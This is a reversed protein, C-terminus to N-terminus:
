KGSIRGIDNVLGFVMLLALLVLGYTVATEQFQKSLPRGRILEILYSLLYGGDLMPIPLLNMVLLAINIKFMLDLLDVWGRKAAKATEQIIMVPGGVNKRSFSGKAINFITRTYSVTEKVTTKFGEALVMPAGEIKKIEVKPVIGILYRNEKKVFLPAINFILTKEKRLIEFRMAKGNNEKINEAILIVVDNWDKVPVGNISIIKDAPKLGVQEGPLGKMTKELVASVDATEGYKYIMGTAIAQACLFNFLVGAAIIPARKWIPKLIFLKERPANKAVDEVFMPGLNVYGGLPILSLCYETEGIKKKLLKPGFGISFSEVRAGFLRAMLYHGLEHIFILFGLVLFAILYYGM